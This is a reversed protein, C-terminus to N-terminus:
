IGAPYQMKSVELLDKITLAIARATSTGDKGGNSKAARAAAAVIESEELDGDADEDSLDSDASNAGEDTIWSADTEWGSDSAYGGGGSGASSGRGRSSRRIGNGQGRKNHQTAAEGKRRGDDEGADGDSAAAATAAAVVPYYNPLALIRNFRNRVAGAAGGYQGNGHLAPFRLKSSNGRMSVLHQRAAALESLLACNQEEIRKLSELSLATGDEYCWFARLLLAAGLCCSASRWRWLLLRLTSQTAGPDGAAGVHWQILLWEAAASAVFLCVLPLRAAATRNTATVTFAVGLMCAYFVVSKFSFLNELIVEHFQHISHLGSEVSSYLKDFATFQTEMSNLSQTLVGSQNVLREHHKIAQERHQDFQAEFRTLNQRAAALTAEMAATQQLLTQQAKFSQTRHQEFEAEFLTINAKAEALSGQM